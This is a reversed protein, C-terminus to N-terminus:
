TYLGVMERIRAKDEYLVIMEEDFMRLLVDAKWSKMVVEYRTEEDSSREVIHGALSLGGHGSWTNM